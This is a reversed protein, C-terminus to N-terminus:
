PPAGWLQLLVTNFNSAKPFILIYTLVQTKQRSGVSIHPQAGDRFFVFGSSNVLAPQKVCIKRQCEDLQHHYVNTHIIQGRPLFEYLVATKATRWVSVLIRKPHLNPKSVQKSPESKHPWQARCKRNDYLVWKEDVILIRPLYSERVECEQLSKCTKWCGLSQSKTLDHSVWTVTKKAVGM